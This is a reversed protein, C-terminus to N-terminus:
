SVNQLRTNGTFYHFIVATSVYRIAVSAALYSWAPLPKDIACLSDKRCGFTTRLAKLSRFFEYYVLNFVLSKKVFFSAKFKRLVPFNLM